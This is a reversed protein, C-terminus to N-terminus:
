QKAISSARPVAFLPNGSLSSLDPDDTVARVKESGNSWGIRTRYCGFVRFYYQLVLLLQFYHNKRTQAFLLYKFVGYVCVSDFMQLWPVRGWHVGWWSTRFTEATVELTKRQFRLCQRATGRRDIQEIWIRSLKMASGHTNSYHSVYDHIDKRVKQNRAWCLCRRPVVFCTTM